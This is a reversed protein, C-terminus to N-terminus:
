LDSWFRDDSFDSRTGHTEMKPRMKFAKKEKGEIESLEQENEEFCSAISKCHKSATNQGKLINKYHTDRNSNWMIYVEGMRKSYPNWTAPSRQSNSLTTKYICLVANFLKIQLSVKFRSCFTYILWSFHVFSYVRHFLSGCDPLALIKELDDELNLFTCQMAKYAVNYSPAKSHLTFNQLLRPIVSEMSKKTVSGNIAYRWIEQANLYPM